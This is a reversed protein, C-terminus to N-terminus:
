GCFGTLRMTTGSREIVASDGMESAVALLVTVAARGVRRAAATDSVDLVNTLAAKITDKTLLPLSLEAALVRALTTKGSATPRSLVVFHPEM